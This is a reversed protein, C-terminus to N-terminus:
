CAISFTSSSDVFFRSRLTINTGKENGKNPRTGKKSGRRNVLGELISMQTKELLRLHTRLTGSSITICGELRIRIESGRRNM